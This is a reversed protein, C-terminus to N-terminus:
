EGANTSRRKGARDAKREKDSKKLEARARASDFHAELSAGVGFAQAAQQAYALAAEQTIECSVRTGDREVLQWAPPRGRAPVLQCGERLTTPQPSALAALALGLIYRRLAVGDDSAGLSRITEINISAERRVGRRAIIGGHTWAAPAHSLGLESLADQEKKATPEDVLGQLAYEAAPIYQASRHLVDVDYARIVSRVVRQVKAQTGRSDWVGFVISTPAIRSLPEADGANVARFADELKAGLSSFRVVADAARHGADLLSVPSEGVQIVTQPVLAALPATKFLAEMRNAQSGVSDIQCVSTGDAFRDINYGTWEEDRTGQPKAYTPPFMVADAGEAPELEVRLTLAAVVSDYSLWNEFRQSTTEEDNM